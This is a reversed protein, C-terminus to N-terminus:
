SQSRKQEFAVWFFFPDLPEDLNSRYRRCCPFVVIVGCSVGLDFVVFCAHM